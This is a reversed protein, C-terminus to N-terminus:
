VIVVYSISCKHETTWDHGVRQSGMSQLVRRGQGEGDGLVQEFEHGNLQHYWRVMEEETTGKEEQSWDEGPDPDKGTFWSKVDPPWLLPSEADTSIFIWHQNGKRNVPQIEKCNWPSEITKELVVAWFCWSKLVWSEKHDLEWMWIRGSSFVRSQSCVKAPLATDRSKLIGDLNTM